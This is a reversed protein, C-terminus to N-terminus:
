WYRIRSQGTRRATGGLESVRRKPSRRRAAWGAILAMAAWLWGSGATRSAGVLAAGCGYRPEEGILSADGAQNPDQGMRLEAVDPTGDGDSDIGERELEDLAARLTADNGARLGRQRLAAGFPTTVTGFGTVGNQHCVSCPPQYSLGLSSQIVAPFGPTAHAISSGLLSSAV